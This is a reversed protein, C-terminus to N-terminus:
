AFIPDMLSVLSSETKGDAVAGYSTVDFIRTLAPAQAPGPAPAAATATNPSTCSDCYPAAAEVMCALILAIYIGEVM